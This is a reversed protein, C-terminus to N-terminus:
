NKLLQYVNWGAIAAALGLAFLTYKPNMFFVYFFAGVIPTKVLILAPVMGIKDFLFRYMKSLERGGDSLIRYTTVGDALQLIIFAVLLLEPKM